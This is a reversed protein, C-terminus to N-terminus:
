GVGGGGAARVAALVGVARPPAAPHVAAELALCRGGDVTLAHCLGVPIGIAYPWVLDLFRFRFFVGGAGVEGGGGEM